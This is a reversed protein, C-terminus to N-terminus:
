HTRSDLDRFRGSDPHLVPSQPTTAGTTHPLFISAARTIPSVPTPPLVGPPCTPNYDERTVFGRNASLITRGRNPVQEDPCAAVRFMEELRRGCADVRFGAFEAQGDDTTAFLALGNTSWALYGPEARGQADHPPQIPHRVIELPTGDADTAYLVVHDGAHLAVLGGNEWARNTAIQGALSLGEGAPVRRTAGTALEVVDVEGQGWRSVLLHREDHTLDAHVRRAAPEEADEGVPAAPGLSAIPGELSMAEDGQVTLRWVDGVDTVVWGTGGWRRMADDGYYQELAVAAPIGHPVRVAAYPETPMPAGVYILDFLGMKVDGTSDDRFTLLVLTDGWVRTMAGFPLPSGFTPTFVEHQWVTGFDVGSARRVARYTKQRPDAPGVVFNHLGWGMAVRGPEGLGRTRGKPVGPSTEFFTLGGCGPLSGESSGEIAIVGRETMYEEHDRLPDPHIATAMPTASPVPPPLPTATPRVDAPPCRPVFDHPPQLRGNATWIMFGQNNEDECAAIESVRVLRSGCDQVDLVVFDSTGHNTAAILRDGSASWRVAAPVPSDAVVVPQVPHRALEELEGDPHFRYVVVNSLAHVALLGHNEWGHNIAVGGTMTIGDGASVTWSTREHLDSIGLDSSLWRNTVLYREDVSLDAFVIKESVEGRALVEDPIFPPVMMPPAVPQTSQLDISSLLGERDVTHAIRGDRTVLIETPLLGPTYTYRQPWPFMLHHEGRQELEELDTTDFAALLRRGESIPLLLSSTEPVFALGTWRYSVSLGPPERVRRMQWDAWEPDTRQWHMHAVVRSSGSSAVIQRVETDVDLRALSVDDYPARYLPEATDVDFISISGCGPADTKPARDVLIAIQEVGQDRGAAGSGGAPLSLTALLLAVSLGLMTGAWSWTLSRQCESTISNM